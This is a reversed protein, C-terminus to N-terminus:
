HQLPEGSDQPIKDQHGSCRVTRFEGTHRRLEAILQGGEGFGDSAGPQQLPLGLQSPRFLLQALAHWWAEPQFYQQQAKQGFRDSCRRAGGRM